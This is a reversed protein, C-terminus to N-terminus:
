AVWSAARILADPNPHFFFEACRTRMAVTRATSLGTHTLSLSPDPLTSSAILRALARAHSLPVISTRPAFEIFLIVGLCAPIWSPSGGSEESPDAFALFRNGDPRIIMCRESLVPSSPRYTHWLTAFTHRVLVPTSALLIVQDRHLVGCAQVAIAGTAPLPSQFFRTRLLASLGVPLVKRSSLSSGSSSDSLSAV